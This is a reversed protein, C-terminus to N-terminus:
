TSPFTRASGPKPCSTRAQFSFAMVMTTGPSSPLGLLFLGRALTPELPRSEGAPRGALAMLGPGSGAWGAGGSGTMGPSEWDLRAFRCTRFTLMNLLSMSYSMKLRASVKRERRAVPCLRSCTRRPLTM